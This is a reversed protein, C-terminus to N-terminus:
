SKVSDGVPPATRQLRDLRWSDLVGLGRADGKFQVKYECKGPGRLVVVGVGGRYDGPAKDNAKVLEGVDFKYKGKTRLM